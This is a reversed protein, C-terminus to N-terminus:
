RSGSKRQIESQRMPMADIIGFLRKTTIPAHTRYKEGGDRGILLITFESSKIHYRKALESNFEAAEIKVDRETVGLSDNELWQLQTQFGLQGKGFLFLKRPTRAQFSTNFMLISVLLLFFKNRSSMEM